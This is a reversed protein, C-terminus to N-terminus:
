FGLSFRRTVGLRVSYQDEDQVIPSDAADELLRNYEFEGVIATKEGIAYRAQTEFGASKFGGSPEYASYGSTAADGDSVGFYTEMYEDDAMTVNPGFSILLRDTAQYYYDFGVEGVIGEHGGFGRRAVAYTRFNGYDYVVRGGVEYAADISELGELDSDDDEDREGIYNFSPVILFNSKSGEGGDGFARLRFTANRAIFWPALENEDSGEYSPAYSAGFGLDASLRGFGDTPQLDQAALPSAALAFLLAYKM